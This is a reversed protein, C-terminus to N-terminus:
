DVMPARRQAKRRQAKKMQNDIRALRFTNGMPMRDRYWHPDLVMGCVARFLRRRRRIVRRDTRNDM